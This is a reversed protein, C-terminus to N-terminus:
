DAPIVNMYGFLDDDLYKFPNCSTTPTNKKGKEKVIKPVSLEVGQEELCDKIKAKISQGSIYSTRVPRGGAKTYVYKIGNSGLNVCGAPVNLLMGGQIFRRNATDIGEMKMNNRRWIKRKEISQYMFSDKRM